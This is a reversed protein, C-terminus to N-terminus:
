HCFRRELSLNFPREVYPGSYNSYLKATRLYKCFGVDIPNTVIWAEMNTYCNRPHEPQLSTLM